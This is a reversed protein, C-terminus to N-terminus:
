CRTDGYHVVVTKEHVIETIEPIGQTINVTVVPRWVLAKSTELYLSNDFSVTVVNTRTM